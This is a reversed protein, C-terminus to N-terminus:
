KAYFSTIQACIYKIETKTLFSSSPLWLGHKTVKTSIPFDLSLDTMRGVKSGRSRARFDELPHIASKDVVGNNLSQYIPQSHIAPYFVRTGVNKTKLYNQLALPDPVLADIFWPSVNKLDTSIFKVEKVEKLYKQYLAYIEKKLKVRKPLKKMQAMGLVAQLDTFKFNWGIQDHWDMGAQVRGFDKLKEIKEYIKQSDTILAGGQGTTIIKPASFSFSGVLGHRGLHKNQYFSGFSQAADEILAINKQRCLKKLETLRGSRGNISVHFVAKTKPTIAKAALEPNLCFSDEDIDALVPRAGAMLVANPTAIMTFDPVIVEDGKKVGLAMLALVLSITGNPLVSCYKAGTFDCIMKEFEETKKFEMLWGGSDLYDVVAKKEEKGHWPEMQNIFKKSDM